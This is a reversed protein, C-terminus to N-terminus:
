VEITRKFKVENELANNQVVINYASLDKIGHVFVPEVNPTRRAYLEAESVNRQNYLNKMLPCDKTLPLMKYAFHCDWAAGSPAGHINHEFCFDTKFFANGNVHPVPHDGMVVGMIPMVKEEYLATRLKHLWNPSLPVIDPEITFVYDWDNKDQRRQDYAWLMTECWQANPGSPHGEERRQNHYLYTKFKESVKGVTKPCVEAGRKISFIFEYDKNFDPEMAAILACTKRMLEYDGQYYQLCLAIKSM